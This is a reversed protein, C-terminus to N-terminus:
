CFFNLFFGQNLWKRLNKRGEGPPTPPHYGGGEIPSGQNGVRPSWPSNLFTKDLPILPYEFKWYLMKLFKLGQNLQILM